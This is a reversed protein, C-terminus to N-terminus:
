ITWIQLYNFCHLHLRKSPIFVSWTIKCRFFNFGQNKAKKRCPLFHYHHTLVIALILKYSAERQKNFYFCILKGRNIYVTFLISCSAIVAAFGMVFGLFIWVRAGRTGMCGGEYSDGRMKFCIVMKLRRGLMNIYCVQANSISNVMILSLTGAVGCMWYGAPIHGPLVTASDIIIWWGTFFQLHLARIFILASKIYMCVLFGSLMSAYANRKDGEFWICPPVSLNTCCDLLGM